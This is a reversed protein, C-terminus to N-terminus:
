WTRPAAPVPDLHQCTQTRPPAGIEQATGSKKVQACMAKGQACHSFTLFRSGRKVFVSIGNYTNGGKGVM